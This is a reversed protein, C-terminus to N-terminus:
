KTENDKLYNVPSMFVSRVDEYTLLIVNDHQVKRLSLGTEPTEKPNSVRVAFRPIPTHTREAELVVDYKGCLEQLEALFQELREKEIM